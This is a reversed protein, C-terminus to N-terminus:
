SPRVVASEAWSRDFPVNFNNVYDIKSFLWVGDRRVYEEVYDGLMWRSIRKGAEAMTCPMLIRWQGTATDGDVDIISNMALHAAFVIQASVGGFFAEIAPRGVHHGFDRGSWVADDAFLPGLKEPPYGLDCYHMYV